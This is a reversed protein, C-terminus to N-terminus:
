HDFLTAGTTSALGMASLYGSPVAAANIRNYPSDALVAYSSAIEKVPSTITVSGDPNGIPPNFPPKLRWVKKKGEQVCVFVTKTKTKMTKKKKKAKVAVTVIKGVKPCKSGSNIAGRAVDAGVALSSACVAFVVLLRKM